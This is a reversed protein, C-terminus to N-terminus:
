IIDGLVNDVGGSSIKTFTTPAIVQVTSNVANNGARSAGRVLDDATPLSTDYDDPSVGGTIGGVAGAVLCDMGIAALPGGDGAINIIEYYAGYVSKKLEGLETYVLKNVEDTAYEVVGETLCASTTSLASVASDQVLAQIDLSTEPEPTAIPELDTHVGYTYAGTTPDQGLVSYTTKLKGVKYPTSADFGQYSTKLKGLEYDDNTFSFDSGVPATCESLSAFKSVLIGREALEVRRIAAEADTLVKFSLETPATKNLNTNVQLQEGKLTIMVANSWDKDTKTDYSTFVVPDYNGLNSVVKCVQANDVLAACAKHLDKTIDTSMVDSNNADKLVTNTIVAKVTFERNKKIANRSVEYGSMVPFKTIVSKAAHAEVMVAHFRIQQESQGEPTFTIRCPTPKAM